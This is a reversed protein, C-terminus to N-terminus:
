KKCVVRAIRKLYKMEKDTMEGEEVMIKDPNLFRGVKEGCKFMFDRAMFRGAQIFHPTIELKLSQDSRCTFIKPPLFNEKM